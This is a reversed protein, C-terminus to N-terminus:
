SNSSAHQRQGALQSSHQPLAAKELPALAMHGTKASSSKKQATSLWPAPPSIAAGQSQVHQPPRPAAPTRLATRDQGLPKAPPVSQRAPGGCAGSVGVLMPLSSREQQFVPSTTSLSRHPWRRTDREPLPVMAGRCPHSCAHCAGAAARRRQITVASIVITGAALGTLGLGIVIETALSLGAFTHSAASHLAIFAVALILLTATTSPLYCRLRLLLPIEKAPATSASCARRRQM